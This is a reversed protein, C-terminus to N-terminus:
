FSFSSSFLNKNNSECSHGLSTVTDFYGEICDCNTSLDRRDSSCSLCTEYELECTTCKYSCGKCIIQLIFKKQKKYNMANKM